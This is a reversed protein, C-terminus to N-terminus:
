GVRVVQVVAAGAVSRSPLYRVKLKRNGAELGRITTTAVGNRLVLEKLVEGRSTVVVTGDVPAVGPATVTVALAVRGRGPTAAAKIVPETKVLRTAVARTEVTTYGPKAYTLRAQLHSGLDDVTLPYTTGSVGDVPAGSRFWEIAVQTDAPSFAGVDLTLTEGLRALGSLQPTEVATITGPAVPETPVSSAPVDVYGSKAATVVVAIAKGV